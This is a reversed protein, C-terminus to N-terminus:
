DQGITLMWAERLEERGRGEGGNGGGGGEKASNVSLVGKVRKSSKLSALCLHKKTQSFYYIFITTQSSKLEEYNIHGFTKYMVCKYMVCVQHHGM